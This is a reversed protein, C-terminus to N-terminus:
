GLNSLARDFDAPSNVYEVVQKGARTGSLLLGRTSRLKLGWRRGDPTVYTRTWRNQHWTTGPIREEVFQTFRDLLPQLRPNRDLQQQRREGWDIGAGNAIVIEHPEGTRALEYARVAMGVFGQWAQEPVVEHGDLSLIPVEAATLKSALDPVGYEEALTSVNLVSMTLSEAM